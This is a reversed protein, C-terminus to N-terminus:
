NYDSIGYLDIRNFLIDNAIYLRRRSWPQETSNAYYVPEFPLGKPLAHLSDDVSVSDPRSDFRVNYSMFRLAHQAELTYGPNMMINQSACTRVVLQMLTILISSFWTLHAHSQM